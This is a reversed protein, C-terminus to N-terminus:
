MVVVRGDRVEIRVLTKIRVGADKEVRARGEGKEVVILIDKVDIRMERFARLLPALTGGTSIVDDVFLIRDGPKLGNVFLSGKSYGTRQGIEKEDPLGYKRKRIVCIPVDTHLSLATAVPIGMAEVTVIRDIGRMDVLKTIEDVVEDLLAPEIAPIGDTLPHVFYAYGGFDVVPAEELSKRLLAGVDLSGV